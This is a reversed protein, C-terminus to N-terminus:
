GLEVNDSLEVLVFDAYIWLNVFRFKEGIKRAMADKEGRPLLHFSSEAFEDVDACKIRHRLILNRRLEIGFREFSVWFNEEQQSDATKETKLGSIIRHIVAGGM